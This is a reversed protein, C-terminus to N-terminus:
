LAIGSSWPGFCYQHDAGVRSKMGPLVAKTLHFASSLNIGLIADWKSEPFEDVPAVHQIGANNVVIDVGGFETVALDALERIEAPNMMNADSYLVRVGYGELRAREAEVKEPAEIGNLVINIGARAFGEAIGLGIGSSSGTVIASKSQSM